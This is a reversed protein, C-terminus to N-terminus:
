GPAKGLSEDTLDLVVPPMGTGFVILRINEGAAIAAREADTPVWVSAIAPGSNTAVNYTWLDNDETGGPLTFVRDTFVTRRPKM